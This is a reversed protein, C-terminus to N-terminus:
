AIVTVNAHAHERAEEAALEMYRQHTIVGKDLLYARIRRLVRTRASESANDEEYLDPTYKVDENNNLFLFFAENQNVGFFRFVAEWNNHQQGRLRLTPMRDVYTLGQKNFEPYACAWGVACAATGCGLANPGVNALLQENTHTGNRRWHRLDVAEDPVGRMVAYLTRLNETGKSLKM